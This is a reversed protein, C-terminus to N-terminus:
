LQKLCSLNWFKGFEKGSCLGTRTISRSLAACLLVALAYLYVNSKNLFLSNPSQFSTWLFCLHLSSWNLKPNQRNKFFKLLLPSVASDNSLASRQFSPSPTLKLLTHSLFAELAWFCHQLPAKLTSSPASLTYSGLSPSFPHSMCDPCSVAMVILFGCCSRTSKSPRCLFPGMLFWAHISSSPPYSVRVAPSNTSLSLNLPLLAVATGIWHVCM